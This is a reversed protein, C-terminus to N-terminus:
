VIREKNRGKKIVVKDSKLLQRHSTWVRLTYDTLHSSFLSRKVALEKSSGHFVNHM